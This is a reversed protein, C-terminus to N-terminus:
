VPSDRAGRPRPDFCAPPLAVGSARQEVISGTLSGLGLPEGLEIVAIRHQGIKRGAVFTGNSSGLDEIVIRDDVHLVAHRRSVSPHRIVIDCESSRGITLSVGQPLPFHWVRAGDLVFLGHHRSSITM